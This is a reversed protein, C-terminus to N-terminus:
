MVKCDVENYKKYNSTIDDPPLSYGRNIRSFEFGFKVNQSSDQNHVLNTYTGLDVVSSTSIISFGGSELPVSQKALLLSQLISSKGSSNKGFILTIPALGAKEPSGFTKFNELLISTIM